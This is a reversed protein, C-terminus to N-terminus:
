PAGSTKLRHTAQRHGPQLKLLRRDLPRSHAFDKLTWYCEALPNMIEPNDPMRQNSLRLLPLAEKFKGVRMLGIAKRAMDVPQIRHIYYWGFSLLFLAAGTWLAVRKM